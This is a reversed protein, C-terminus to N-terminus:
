IPSNTAAGEGRRHSFSATPCQGKAHRQKPTSGITTCRYGVMTMTKKYSEKGKNDQEQQQNSAVQQLEVRTTPAAVYGGDDNIYNALELSEWQLEGVVDNMGEVLQTQMPDTTSAGMGPLLFSMDM